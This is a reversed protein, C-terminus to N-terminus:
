KFLGMARAMAASEKLNQPETVAEGGATQAGGISSPIADRTAKKKAAYAKLAAEQRAVFVDHGRTLANRIHATDWNGEEVFPAASNIVEAALTQFTALEAPDTPVPGLLEILTGDVTVQARQAQEAQMREQLPRTSEDVRQNAQTLAAEVAKQVYSKVEAGTVVEEDSLDAAGAEQAEQPAEGGLGPASALAGRIQDPSYGLAILGNTVLARMGSETKMGQSIVIADDVAQKGGYSEYPDAPEVPPVVAATGSSLEDVADAESTDEPPAEPEEVLEPIGTSQRLEIAERMNAPEAPTTVEPEITTM